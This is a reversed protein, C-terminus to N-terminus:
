VLEGAILGLRLVLGVLVEEVALKGADAGGYLLAAALDHYCVDERTGWREFRAHLRAVDDHRHIALAGGAPGGVIGDVVNATLRVRRDFDVHAAIPLRDAERHRALLDAHRADGRVDKIALNEVDAHEIEARAGRRLEVLRQLAAQGIRDLRYDEVQSVVGATVDIGGVRHDALEHLTAGRRHKHLSASFFLHSGHAAVPYREGVGQHHEDVFVRGASGLDRGSGQFIMVACGQNADPGKALARYLFVELEAVPVQM